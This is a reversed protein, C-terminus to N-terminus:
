ASEAIGKCFDSEKNKECFAIAEQMIIEPFRNQFEVMIPMMLESLRSSAKSAFKASKIGVPTKYFATLEALEETSFIEANIITFFELLAGNKIWAEDMSRDMASELITVFEIPPTVGTQQTLMQTMMPFITAMSDKMQGEINSAEYYERAAVIKENSLSSLDVSNNENAVCFTSIASTLLFVTLGQRM